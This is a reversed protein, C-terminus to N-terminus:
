DGLGLGSLEREIFDIDWVEVLPDANGASALRGGHSDFVLNTVFGRHGPLRLRLGPREPRAVSWLSIMGQTSGVALDRGTPSFAMARWSTEMEGGAPELQSLIRGRATDLLTVTGTKDLVALVRGSPSLALNIAGNALPVAWNLDRARAVTSESDSSMELSWARLSSQGIIQEIVYIRDGRPAIAVAGLHPARPPEGPSAGREVGSAPTSVVEAASRTPAIVPIMAKAASARWIFLESGRAMAMMKGDPTKAIPTTWILRGSVRPLNIRLPPGQAALAGAPWIQVGNSDHAILRGQADYALSAPPPPRFRERERDRDNEGRRGPNRNPAEARRLEPSPLSAALAQQPLPPGVEPCRGSRWFWLDGNRGGIALLGADNFALASQASDFGSLQTAAASDHLTWVSTLSSRGTAALVRGDAAFALDTAQDDMQLVAVLSHAVLDWLEVPGVGAIALVTGQPSFRMLRTYSQTPPTLSMPFARTDLDWVRIVAGGSTTGATALLENPGLALAGLETQTDVEDREKPSGDIGSFLRVLRGRSGGVAVTKGDPSIAVLPWNRGPRGPPGPRASQWELKRIPKDLHEPDWLNVQFENRTWAAEPPAVGDTAAAVPDDIPQEITVLRRGSADGVVSLVAREPPNHIRLPVGLDLDILALGKEGPLLAAIYPGTQALRQPPPWIPGRRVGSAPTGAAPATRPAATPGTPSGSAEARSAVPTDSSSPDSVVPPGAGSGVRLSLSTLRKRRSVDWFALEEDDDSLVALRRGDPGFVLGHARGTELEPRHAEVERLVLFRVAWDRLRARLEDDPDLRVAEGILELGHSRRNPAGSLGVLEITSLLNETRATREKANAEQERQLAQRLNSGAALARNRESVVRVYAFTAIALIAAAAAATVGTSGPHRCAVRWLRGIPSIRRAKVPERNRYRTLDEAMLAATAYRDAPRKALAKLVITELDRPVRPDLSSPAIPEQQGIQEVLEAATRGDFPPRLTLLEYLTAGLSYVDTRGDISGTRAQEPSMYRPTGLLSDHHTLGPDALRRALGFDTVWINGKSDVLLNSPKVDRHIVGQHHAHALADAAQIGVAAVWRYYASGRDPDFPPPEDDQRGRAPDHAALSATADAAGAAAPACQRENELPRRRAGPGWTATSDGAVSRSRAGDPAGGQSSRPPLAAAGAQASGNALGNRAAQRQWGSSVKSWLRFIASPVAAGAASRSPSTALLSTGALEGGGGALRSRRLHRVVRDLGSGEIRQMAYYCLGGVQGVDFVPVIHTHHLGAATRAENLFRRRARADPAVHIGLVKLAVPRDLGVHVAEYVTGMGGRGLERVVRYGAIRRGSEIRHDIGRGGGSGSGTASGLGILGHVLELGELAARVDDELGPYRAVFDDVAPPQGQEALALYAEVAEGVREDDDIPELPDGDSSDRESIRDAMM